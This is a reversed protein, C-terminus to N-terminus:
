SAEIAEKLVNGWWVLDNLVRALQEGDAKDGVFQDGAFKDRLNALHVADRLPVIRLEILVQRVQEIGHAGHVSGYTIFSAPKRAWEAYLYDLANKLVPTYGHNYEPSIFIYGDGQAIKEAWRQQLPNEYDGMIPPKSFDFMPLNWDKLDVLEVSLDERTTALQYAWDGVPKARRGQRISGVIIQIHM